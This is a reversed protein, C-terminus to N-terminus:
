EGSIISSIDFNGCIDGITVFGSTKRGYPDRPVDKTVAERAKDVAEQMSQKFQSVQQKQQKTLERDNRISRRLQKTRKLIAGRGPAPNGYGALEHEFSKFLDYVQQPFQVSLLRLHAEENDLRLVPNAQDLFSLSYDVLLQQQRDLKHYLKRALKLQDASGLPRQDTNKGKRATLYELNKSIPSMLSDLEKDQIATKPPVNLENNLVGLCLIYKPIIKITDRGRSLTTHRRILIGATEADRIYRKVQRVSKGTIKAFQHQGAVSSLYNHQYPNFGIGSHPNRILQVLFAIWPSKSNNTLSRLRQIMKRRQKTKGQFNAREELLESETLPSGSGVKKLVKKPRGGKNRKPALVSRNPTSKPPKPVTKTGNQAFEPFLEIQISSNHSGTSLSHHKDM